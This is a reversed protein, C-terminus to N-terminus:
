IVFHRRVFVDFYKSMLHKFSITFNWHILMSLFTYAEHTGSAKNTLKIMRPCLENYRKMFHAKIDLEVHRGKWDQNSGLRADRTWRKLIYHEPIQKINMVDLVKLAHSCLIGHTEFKRCDCSVKQEVHNGMVIREKPNDYNTVAYLGGKL